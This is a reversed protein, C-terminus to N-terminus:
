LSSRHCSGPSNVFRLIFRQGRKAVREPPEETEAFSGGHRSANRRLLMLGQQGDLTKGRAVPDGHALQGFSQLEAVVARNSQNIPQHHLLQDNTFRGGLIAALDENLEAMAAFSDELLQSEDVARLQFAESRFDTLQKPSKVASSFLPRTANPREVAERPKELPHVPEQKVPTRIKELRQKAAKAPSPRTFLRQRLLQPASACAHM